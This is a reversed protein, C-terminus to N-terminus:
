GGHYERFTKAFSNPAPPDPAADADPRPRVDLRAPAILHVVPVDDHIRNHRNAHPVDRVIQGALRAELADSVQELDRLVAGTVVHVQDPEM